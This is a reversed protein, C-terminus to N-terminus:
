DSTNLVMKYGVGRVNAIKVNPDAELKKRLKSIFVDLTRGIYAGEDGWVIKLILERELITNASSHLLFLLDAEKSTLETCTDEFALNMNRQDFKFEGIAILRSDSRTNRRRKYIYGILGLIVLLSVILAILLSSNGEKKTGQGDLGTSGSSLLDSEPKDLITVILSYCGRPQPRTRCPIVDSVMELGAEFGYVIEGTQCEEVEVLYKTAIKTERVVSDVISVLEEPQFVFETAFPITYRNEKISIPLVRSTTDGFKMLMRHGIMRMSVKIHKEDDTDQSFSMPALWLLTMVVIILRRGSNISM